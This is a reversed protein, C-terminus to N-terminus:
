DTARVIANLGERFTPYALAVGLDTKIRHNSVRKCEAYFSRAMPTLDALDFPLTPPPEIGMLEAAYLLVDESAAPEDDTANYIRHPGTGGIAAQLVTAIDEVHIRNFVQGPKVIRRATGRKLSDIVSRGPGYIGALRFIEVRRRTEAGLALWANEAAVRRRSRAGLPAPPTEEDVWGGAHDGYVGVTSLYGIWQLNPATRLADAHWRLVPDGHDGPPTSVLVHTADALAASIPASTMTDDLLWGAYGLGSIRAVSEPSAATGSIRWGAGAVRRALAEASYGLGLCLLHSM